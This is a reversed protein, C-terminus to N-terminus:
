FSEVRKCQYTEAFGSEGAAAVSNAFSMSQEGDPTFLLKATAFFSLARSISLKNEATCRTTERIGNGIALKEGLKHTAWEDSGEDPVDEDFIAMRWEGAVFSEVILKREM